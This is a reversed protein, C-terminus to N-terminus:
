GIVLSQATVIFMSQYGGYRFIYVNETGDVKKTSVAPANQALAPSTLVTLGFAVAFLSVSKM